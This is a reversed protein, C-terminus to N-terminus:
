SKVERESAQKSYVRILLDFIKPAVVHVDNRWCAHDRSAVVVKEFTTDFGHPFITCISIYSRCSCGRESESETMNMERERTPRETM